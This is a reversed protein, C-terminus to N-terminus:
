LEEVQSRHFLHYEKKDKVEETLEEFKYVKTEKIRM